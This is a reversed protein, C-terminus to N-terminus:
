GFPFTALLAKLGFGLVLFGVTLRLWIQMSKEYWPFLFVGSLLPSAPEYDPEPAYLHKDFQSLTITEVSGAVKAASLPLDPEDALSYPEAPPDPVYRSTPLKENPEVDIRPKEERNVPRRSESPMAWPDIAQVKPKRMRPSRPMASNKKPKRQILWALRGVLRAHILLCSAATPGALLIMWGNETFLSLYTLFSAAGLIIGTLVYFGIVTLPMRVLRSFVAPRIVHGKFSGTLSFWVTLPFMLWIAPTALLFVRLMPNNPLWDNKLLRSILVAPFIWPAVMAAFFIAPLLWDHFPEDPWLVEDHGATTGQMAGLYSHAAFPLVYAAVIVTGALFLVFLIVGGPM